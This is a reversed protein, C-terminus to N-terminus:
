QNQSNGHPLFFFYVVAMSGPFCLTLPCYYRQSSVLNKHPNICVSSFIFHKIFSSFACAESGELCCVTEVSVKKLRRLCGGGGIKEKM